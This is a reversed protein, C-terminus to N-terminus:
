QYPSEETLEFYVDELTPEEWVFRTYTIENRALTDLVAPVEEPTIESFVLDGDRLSVKHDFLEERPPAGLDGTRVIFHSGETYEAILHDPGGTAVIKGDNILAVRDALAQAEGMDHTTLLVTRDESRISRLLDWVRRRGRPDIGTTPEDLILLDPDNVLASGVCIRRQQGGSLREYWQDAADTMGVDILVDAASRASDYFGAYYSLIEAGTLRGPPSFAQPLLGIRSKEVSQPSEGFIRVDGSDPTLTGTISRVLTTKGAGNPGILVFIQGQDIELDVGSLAHVDDYAHSISSVSVVCDM